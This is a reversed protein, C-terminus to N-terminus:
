SSPKIEYDSSAPPIKKQLMSTSRGFYMANSKMAVARLVELGLYKKKIVHIKM